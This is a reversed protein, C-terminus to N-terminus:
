CRQVFMRLVHTLLFTILMHEFCLTVCCGSGFTVVVRGIFIGDVVVRPVCISCPFCSCCHTMFFVHFLYEM